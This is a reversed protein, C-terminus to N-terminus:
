SRGYAKEKQLRMLMVVVMAFVFTLTGFFWWYRLILYAFYVFPRVITRLVPNQLMLKAIPPSYRYYTEVLFKGAASQLLVQDRFQRLFKIVHNDRGYAATAIFCQNDELLAEVALPTGSDVASINSGFKFNDVFIVGIYYTTSNTLNPITVSANANADYVDTSLSCGATEFDQSGAFSSEEVCTRVELFNNPSSGTYNVTLSADGRDISAITPTITSPPDDSFNVEFYIGGSNNDPASNNGETLDANSIFAYFYRKVTTSGTFTGCNSFSGSCFDALDIYFTKEKETSTVDIADFKNNDDPDDTSNELPYYVEWNSSTGSSPSETNSVLLYLYSSSNDATYKVKVSMYGATIGTTSDADPLNSSGQIHFKGNSNADMGLYTKIPSSFVTGDGSTEEHPELNIDSTNQGYKIEPNDTDILNVTDAAHLSLSFFLGLVLLTFHM